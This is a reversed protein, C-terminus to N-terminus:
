LSKYLSLIAERGLANLAKINNEPITEPGPYNALIRELQAERIFHMMPLPSRNTYNGPEDEAVGAFCYDPHFSAIQFVGELGAKKVLQQAQDLVLLYHYFDTLGSSFILLGTAVDQESSNQLLELEVLVAQLIAEDDIADSVSMRLSNDQMVKGAFPCLNLGVVVANLWRSTIGLAAQEDM